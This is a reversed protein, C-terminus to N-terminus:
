GGGWPDGATSDGALVASEGVLTPVRAKLVVDVGTSSSQNKITTVPELCPAKTRGPSPLPQPCPPLLGVHGRTGDPLHRAPAPQGSLTKFGANIGLCFNVGAATTNTIRETLEYTIYLKFFGTRNTPRVSTPGTARLQFQFTTPSRLQYGGCRIALAGEAKTMLTGSAHRAATASRPATAVAVQLHSATAPPGGTFALPPSNASASCGNLHVCAKTAQGPTQVAHAVPGTVLLVLCASLTLTGFARITRPHRKPTVSM